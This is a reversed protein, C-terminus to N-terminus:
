KDYEVFSIKACPLYARWLKLSAGPGYGMNCGLGIELIHLNPQFRAHALFRTYAYHYAPTPHPNPPDYLHPPAAYGARQAQLSVLVPACAARGAEGQLLCECHTTVKDTGVAIAMRM